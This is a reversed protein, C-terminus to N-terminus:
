RPEITLHSAGGTIEIDYGATATRCDPTSARTEGGIAGFRQEDLTLKSVGGRVTARVPVDAPRLLAVHSVGGVVRIPVVGAPRSLVLEVHSAGGRIELGTLQVAELNADLRSVGGRLALAWPVSANLVIDAGQDALQLAYRAWDGPSLNRFRIGVTGGDVSVDPVPGEFHARFLDDMDARAHMTVHSAGRRFELRGATLGALPTSIDAGDRVANPLNMM